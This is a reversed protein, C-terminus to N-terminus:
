IPDFIMLNTFFLLLYLGSITIVHLLHVQWKVQLYLMSAVVSVLALFVLPWIVVSALYLENELLVGDLALGTVPIALALIGHASSAIRKQLTLGRGLYFYYGSIAILLIPFLTFIQGLTM